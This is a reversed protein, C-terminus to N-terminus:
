FSFNTSYSISFDFKKKFLKLESFDPYDLLDHNEIFSYFDKLKDLDDTKIDIIIKLNPCSNLKSFLLKLYNLSELNHFVLNFLLRNKIHSFMYNYVEVDADVVDLGHHFLYDIVYETYVYNLSMNTNKLFKLNHFNLYSELMLCSCNSSLDIMSNLKSNYETDELIMNFENSVVIIENLGYNDHNCYDLYTLTTLFELDVYLNYGTRQFSVGRIGIEFCPYDPNLTILQPPLNLACDRRGNEDILHYREIINELIININNFDQFM